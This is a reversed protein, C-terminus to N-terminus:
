YSLLRVQLNGPLNARTVSLKSAPELQGAGMEKLFKDVPEIASKEVPTKYHMPIVYKPEVQRVVKAAMAADITYVGGVPILLVDINSWAKEINNKLTVLGNYMGILWGLIGIAFLALVVFKVMSEEEPATVAGVKSEM